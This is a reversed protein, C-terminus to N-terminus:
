IVSFRYISIFLVSIYFMYSFLQILVVGGQSYSYNCKAKIDLTCTVRATGTYTQNSFHFFSNADVETQLERPNYTYFCINEFSDDIFQIIRLWTNGGHDRAQYDQTVVPIDIGHQNKHTFMNEGGCHFKHGSLVIVVNATNRIIDKVHKNIGDSCDSLAWHTVIIGKRTPYENLNKITWLTVDTHFNFALHFIILDNGYLEYNNEYGHTENFFYIDSTQKKNEIISAFEQNMISYDEDNNKHNINDHNGVSWGFPINKDQLCSLAFKAVKWEKNKEGHQVIDGVHFIFDLPLKSACSCLWQVQEEFLIPWYASYYQTDPLVGLTFQPM